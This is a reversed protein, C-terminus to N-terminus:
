LKQCTYILNTNYWVRLYIDWWKENYAFKLSGNSLDYIGHSKIPNQTGDYNIGIRFTDIHSYATNPILDFTIKNSDLVLHNAYIITPGLGTNGQFTFKDGSRILITDSSADKEIAIKSAHIHSSPIDGDFKITFNYFGVLKDRIDEMKPEKHEEKRCSFFAFNITFFALILMMATKATLTSKM